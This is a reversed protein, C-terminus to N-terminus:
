EWEESSRSCCGEHAQSNHHPKVDAETALRPKRAEQELGALRQRTEIIKETIDDLMKDQQDFHSEMINLQKDFREKFHRYVDALTPQGPGFEYHQLLPGNGEPVAKDKTRPM